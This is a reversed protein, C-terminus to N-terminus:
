GTQQRLWGLYDQNGGLVPLILFCPLEYPHLARAKEIVQDALARRTKIFLAHENTQELKGQWRYLSIMSAHITVCAALRQNLMAEAIQKASAEDPCTSYVMVCEDPQDQM